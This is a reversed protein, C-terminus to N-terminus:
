ASMELVWTDTKCIVDKCLLDVTIEDGEICNPNFQFLAFESMWYDFREVADRNKPDDDLLESDFVIENTHGHLVTLIDNKSRVAEAVAGAATDCPRTSVVVADDVCFEVSYVKWNKGIACPSAQSKVEESFFGIWIDEEDIDRQI